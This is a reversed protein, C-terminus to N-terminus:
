KKIFKICQRSAPAVSCSDRICMELRFREFGREFARQLRVLPNRSPPLPGDLGHMDTHPAHARLLYNAMTPVLTRSRDRICM